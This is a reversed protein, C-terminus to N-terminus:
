SRITASLVATDSTSSKVFRIASACLLLIFTGNTLLSNGTLQGTTADIPRLGGSWTAGFDHSCQIQVTEAALGTITFCICTDACVPIGTTAIGLAATAASYKLTRFQGANAGIM